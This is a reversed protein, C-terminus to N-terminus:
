LVSQYYAVTERIGDEHDTFRFDPFLERFRRDDLVKRPAGDPRSTDFVLRGQYGIIRAITEASERISAGHNQAINVPYTLDADITLGRVLLAVIDDVYGWERVPSGTGWVVFEPDGARQARILRIIMGNLAHTRDLDVHDGPGFTNPMLFNVTRIGYQRAYCRSVVYTFRKANGFAYVSEHVEGMWWDPEYHIHADGPYSCNALTNIVRASPCVRRVAQYLSLAMQVNDHLVDAQHTAVYHLAGGHAALNMVAEPALRELWRATGEADRLDIGDRLSGPVADHGSARLARVLREGVFGHGGIVAVKM